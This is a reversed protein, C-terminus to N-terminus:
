RAHQVPARKISPRSTVALVAAPRRKGSEWDIVPVTLVGRVAVDFRHEPPALMGADVGRTPDYTDSGVQLRTPTRGAAPESVAPVLSRVMGIGAVLRGLFQSNLPASVMTIGAGSSVAARLAHGEGTAVLGQFYSDKFWEPRTPLVAVQVPLGTLRLPLHARIVEEANAGSGERAAARAALRLADGVEGLEDDVLYTAVQGYFLYGALGAMALLLLVPVVGIFIYTILLRHRLRWMLPRLAMRLYRIALASGAMVTVFELLGVLTAPKGGSAELLLVALILVFVAQELRSRAKWFARISSARIM